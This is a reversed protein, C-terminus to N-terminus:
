GLVSRGALVCERALASIRLVPVGIATAIIRAAVRLDLPTPTQHVGRVELTARAVDWAALALSGGHREVLSQYTAPSGAGLARLWAGSLSASM